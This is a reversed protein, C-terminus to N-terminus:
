VCGSNLCRLVIFYEFKSQTSAFLKRHIPGIMFTVSPFLSKQISFRIHHLDDVTRDGILKHM